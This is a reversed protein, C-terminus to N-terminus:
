GKQKFAQCIIGSSHIVEISPLLKSKFGMAGCSYPHNPDWSVAFYNCKWCNM